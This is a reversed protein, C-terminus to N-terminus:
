IYSIFRSYKLKKNSSTLSVQRYLISHRLVFHMKM